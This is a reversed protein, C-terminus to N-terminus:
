FKPELWIIIYMDELFFTKIQAIKRKPHLIDVQTSVYKRASFPVEETLACPCRMGVEIAGVRAPLLAQTSRM